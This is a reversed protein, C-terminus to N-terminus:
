IKTGSTVDWSPPPAQAPGLNGSADGKMYQFMIKEFALKVTARPRDAGQTLAYGKILVDPVASCFAASHDTGGFYYMFQVGGYFGLFDVGGRPSTALGVRAGVEVGVPGLAHADRTMALTAAGLTFAAVAISATRM